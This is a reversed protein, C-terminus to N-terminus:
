VVKEIGPNQQLLLVTQQALAEIIIEDHDNVIGCAMLMAHFVEHWFTVKMASPALGEDVELLDRDRSCRGVAM